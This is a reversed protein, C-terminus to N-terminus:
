ASSSRSRASRSSSRARMRRRSSRSGSGSLELLRARAVTLDGLRPEDFPVGLARALDWELEGFLSDRARVITVEACLERDEPRLSAGICATVM